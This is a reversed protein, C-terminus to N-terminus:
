LGGILLGLARLARVQDVLELMARSSRGDQYPRRWFDGDLLTDQDAPTGRSALYTDLRSQESMRTIPISNDYYPTGATLM